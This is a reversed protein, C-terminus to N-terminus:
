KYGDINGGRSFKDFVWRGNPLRVLNFLYWQDVTRYAPKERGIMAQVEAWLQKMGYESPSSGVIGDNNSDDGDVNARTLKSIEDAVLRAEKFSAAGAVDRGLLVIYDCRGVVSSIDAAFVPAFRIVNASADESTAAFSIHNAGMIVSQKLGFDASSDSAEVAAAIDAKLHPLDSDQIAKSAADQAEGARVQAVQLYGKRDPTVHVGTIAHGIHVDAITPPRVFCGCLAALCCAAATHSFFSSARM